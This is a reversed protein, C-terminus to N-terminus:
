NSIITPDLVPLPVGNDLVTVSYAYRTGVPPRSFSCAYVKRPAAVTGCSLNAPQPSGKFTIGNAPFTFRPNMFSDVIVWRITTATDGCLRIRAPEQDVVIEGDVIFVKVQCPPPAATTASDFGMELNQMSRGKTPAEPAAACAAILAASTALFLNSKAM